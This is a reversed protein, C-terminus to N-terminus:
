TPSATASCLDHDPAVCTFRSAAAQFQTEQFRHSPDITALARAQTQHHRREKRREGTKRKRGTGKKKLEARRIREKEKQIEERREEEQHRKGIQAGKENRQEKELESGHGTKRKEEEIIKM